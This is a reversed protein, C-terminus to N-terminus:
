MLLLRHALRDTDCVTRAKIAIAEAGRGLHDVVTRDVHQGAIPQGLQGHQDQGPGLHLVRGSAVGSREDSLHFLDHAGTQITADFHYRVGTAQVRGSTGVSDTFDSSAQAQGGVDRPDTTVVQHTAHGLQRRGSCQSREGVRAPREVDIRGQGGVSIQAAPPDDFRQVGAGVNDDGSPDGIGSDDAAGGRPVVAPRHVVPVPQGSCDDSSM